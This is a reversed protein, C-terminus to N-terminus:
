DDGGRLKALVDARLADEYDTDFQPPDPRADIWAEVDPRLQEPHIRLEGHNVAWGLVIPATPNPHDSVFRDLLQGDVGLEAALQHTDPASPEDTPKTETRGTTTHSKSM